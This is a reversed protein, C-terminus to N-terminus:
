CMVSVLKVLIMIMVGYSDIYPSGRVRSGLMCSIYTLVHNIGRGPIRVYVLHINTWVGFWEEWIEKSLSLKMVQCNVCCGKVKFVIWFMMIMVCFKRMEWTIWCETIWMDCWYCILDHFKILFYLHPVGIQLLLEVQAGRSSNCSVLTGEQLWLSMEYNKRM